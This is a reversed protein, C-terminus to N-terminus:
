RGRSGRCGPVADVAVDDVEVDGDVEVAHVAVGVGGEEDAVDVGLGAAQDLDRALAELSAISADARTCGEVGDASGDLLMGFRLPKPTTRAKTPWPM